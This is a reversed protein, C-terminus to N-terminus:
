LILKEMQDSHVRLHTISASLEGLIDEKREETLVELQLSEILKVVHQCEEKYENLLDLLTEDTRLKNYALTRM